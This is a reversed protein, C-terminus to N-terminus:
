SSQLTPAGQRLYQMFGQQFTAFEEIGELIQKRVESKEQSGSYYKLAMNAAHVAHAFHDIEVSTHIGIWRYAPIVEGSIKVVTDELRKVLAPYKRRLITDLTRFEEDALLESGIHFGISKFIKEENLRANVGYGARVKPDITSDIYGLDLDAVNNGAYEAVAKMVAQAMTRHTPHSPLGRDGFEDIAAAFVCAAVEMSRDNWLESTENPDKFLSTQLALQSALHAVGAGFLRNFYVYKMVTPAIDQATSQELTEQFYSSGRYGSLVKQVDQKEIIKLTNVM